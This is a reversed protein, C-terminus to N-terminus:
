SQSGAWQRICEAMVKDESKEVKTKLVARASLGPVARVNTKCVSSERNASTSLASVPLIVSRQNQCCIYIIFYSKMLSRSQNGYQLEFTTITIIVHYVQFMCHFNSLYPTEWSWLPYLVRQRTPVGCQKIQPVAHIVAKLWRQIQKFHNILKECSHVNCKKVTRHMTQINSIQHSICISIHRYSAMRDMVLCATFPQLLDLLLQQVRLFQLYGQYWSRPSWNHPLCSFLEM